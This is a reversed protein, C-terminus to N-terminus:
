VKKIARSTCKVTIAGTECAQTNCIPETPMFGGKVTM